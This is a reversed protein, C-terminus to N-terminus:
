RGALADVLSIRAVRWAPTAASILAVIASIGLGTAVVSLPMPIPGAGITQFIHPMVTRAILLGVTASFCCLLLAEACVLAIVAGDGFGYTKLVALEPIRERISQMMTNGTLFLLTFLVAFIIYNVFLQIDGVQNVQARIWEKESQTTTENSSNAFLADIQESIEASRSPDDVTVFYMHVTGNGNARAEDFYDYHIYVENAAGLNSLESNFDYIGVIQFTWDDSGDKRVWRQSRIPVTDGIQWGHEEALDRGVIAGTRTRKMAERQDAPLVIEPYTDLFREIDLAGVSIDNKPEQYYGFFITYFSVKKVGPVREIQAMHSLPIAELLNVRSMTRLREEGMSNIASDITSTVGSLIGFLVFAVAVSLGTLVTRMRKRWLGAWVLSLYKM